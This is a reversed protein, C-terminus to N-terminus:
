YIPVYRWREIYFPWCREKIWYGYPVYSVQTYVVPVMVVQPEYVVHQQVIYNQAYIDSNCLCLFILLCYLIYKM